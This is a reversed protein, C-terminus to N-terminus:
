SGMTTTIPNTLQGKQPGMRMKSSESQTAWYAPAGGQVLGWLLTTSLSFHGSPSVQGLDCLECAASIPSLDLKRQEKAEEAMPGRGWVGWEGEGERLLPTM